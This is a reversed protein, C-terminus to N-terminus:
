IVLQKTVGIKGFKHQKSPPNLLADVEGEEPGDEDPPRRDELFEEQDVLREQFQPEPM